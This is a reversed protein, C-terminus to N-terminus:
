SLSSAYFSVESSRKRRQHTSIAQHNVSMSRRIDQLGSELLSRSKSALRIEEELKIMKSRLIAVDHRMMRIHGHTGANTQERVLKAHNMVQYPSTTTSVGNKGGTTTKKGDSMGFRFCTNRTKTGSSKPPASHPKLAPILKVPTSITLPEKVKSLTTPPCQVELDNVVLPPSSSQKIPATKPRELPKQAKRTDISYPQKLKDDKALEESVTKAPESKFEKNTRNIIPGLSSLDPKPPEKSGHCPKELPPSTAFRVSKAPATSSRRPRRTETKQDFSPAKLRFPSTTM